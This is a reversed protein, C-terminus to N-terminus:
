YKLPNLGFELEALGSGDVEIALDLSVYVDAYHIRRSMFPM